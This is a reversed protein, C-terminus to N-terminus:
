LMKLIGKKYLENKRVDIIVLRPDNIHDKLWKSSVLSMIEKKNDVSQSGILLSSLIISVVAIKNLINM